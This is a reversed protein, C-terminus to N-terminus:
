EVVQERSISSCNMLVGLGHAAAAAGSHVSRSPSTRRGLALTLAGARGKERSSEGDGLMSCCLLAAWFRLLLGAAASAGARPLTEAQGAQQVRSGARQQVVWWARAGRVLAM